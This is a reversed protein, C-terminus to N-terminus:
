TSINERKKLCRGKLIMGSGFTMGLSINTDAM